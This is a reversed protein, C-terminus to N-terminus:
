SQGGRRLRDNEAKLATNEQREHDREKVVVARFSESLKLEAKLTNIEAEKEQRILIEDILRCNLHEIESKLADIEPQRSEHGAIFYEDAGMDLYENSETNFQSAWKEFEKRASM